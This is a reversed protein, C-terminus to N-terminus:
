GANPILDLGTFYYDAISVVGGGLYRAGFILYQVIVVGTILLFNKSIHAVAPKEKEM